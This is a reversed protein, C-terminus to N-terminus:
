SKPCLLAGEDIRQHLQGLVPSFSIGGHNAVVQERLTNNDHDISLWKHVKNSYGVNRWWTRLYNVLINTLNSHISSTMSM